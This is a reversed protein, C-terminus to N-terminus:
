YKSTCEELETQLNQIQKNASFVTNKLLAAKKHQRLALGFWLLLLTGILMAPLNLDAKPVVTATQAVTLEPTKVAEAVAAGPKIEPMWKAYILQKEEETLSDLAKQLIAALVPWDGRVAVSENASDREYFDAVKLEPFPFKSQLYNATALFTVAADVKGANVSEFGDQMSKVLHAKIKPFEKLVRETYEYDKSLAISKGSIDARTKISANTKKSIIVLSKTLYSQTFNFWLRRDPRDVMTAVMDVKHAALAKYLESWNFKPYVVFDIGLRQSLLAMFDVAIGELQDNENIFSYPAFAGDYAIRIKKHHTLWQQEKPTLQTIQAQANAAPIYFVALLVPLCFQKISAKILDTCLTNRFYDSFFIM